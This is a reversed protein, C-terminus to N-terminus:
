SRRRRIEAMVRRAGATMRWSRSRTVELLQARLQAIEEGPDTRAALLTLEGEAAAARAEAAERSRQGARLEDGLQTQQRCLLELNCILAAHERPDALDIESLMQPTVACERRRLLVLDHGAGAALDAHEYRVIEFGRGYHERVWWEGHLVDPGGVDWNKHLDVRAMGIREDWDADLIQRAMAPGLVSFLALGGPRMVRHLETLWESWRDTLHTFVSFAYM